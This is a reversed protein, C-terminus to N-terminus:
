NFAVVFLSYVDTKNIAWDCGPEWLQRRMRSCVPIVIEPRDFDRKSPSFITLNKQQDRKKIRGFITKRKDSISIKTQVPNPLKNRTYIRIKKQVDDPNVLRVGFLLQKRENVSKSPFFNAIYFSKSRKKQLNGNSIVINAFSNM